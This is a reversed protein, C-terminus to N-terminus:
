GVHLLKRVATGVSYSWKHFCQLFLLFQFNFNVGHKVLHCAMFVHSSTSTYSWANKAAASSPRSHDAERELWKAWLCLAGLVSQIPGWFWDPRPPSSFFFRKRKRSDFGPRGARLRPVISVSSVRNRFLCYTM